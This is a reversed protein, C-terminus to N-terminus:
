PPHPPSSPASSNSRTTAQYTQNRINRRKKRTKENDSNQTSCFIALHHRCCIVSKVFCFVLVGGGGRLGLVCVVADAGEEGAEAGYFPM